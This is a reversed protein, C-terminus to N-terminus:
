FMGNENVMDAPVEQGFDWMEAIRNNEFRFIHMVAYGLNDPTPRVHSHVAVLDGDQLARKVEFIKGPVQKANEEMATMITEADGKFYVNHHKFNSAVYKGFAERSEGKAALQLFDLAIEKYTKSEM